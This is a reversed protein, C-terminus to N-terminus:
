TAEPQNNSEAGAENPKSEDGKVEKVERGSKLEYTRETFPAKMDPAPPEVSAIDESRGSASPTYPITGPKVVQDGKTKTGEKDVIQSDLPGRRYNVTQIKFIDLSSEIVYANKMGKEGNAFLGWLWLRLRDDRDLGTTVVHDVPFRYQILRRVFQSNADQYEVIRADNTAHLRIFQADFTQTNISGSPVEGRDITVDKWTQQKYPLLDEYNNAKAIVDEQKIYSTTDVLCPFPIDVHDGFAFNNRPMLFFFTDTSGWGEINPQMARKFRMPVQWDNSSVVTKVNFDMMPAKVRQAVIGLINMVMYYMKFDAECKVHGWLYRNAQTWGMGPMMNVSVEIDTAQWKQERDTNGYGAFAGILINSLAVWDEIQDLAKISPGIWRKLAEALIHAYFTQIQWESKTFDNSIRSAKLVTRPAVRIYTNPRRIKTWKDRILGYGIMKPEPIVKIGMMQTTIFDQFMDDIRSKMQLDMEIVVDKRDVYMAIRERDVRPVTELMVDIQRAFEGSADFGNGKWFRNGYLENSKKLILDIREKVSLSEGMKKDYDGKRFIYAIPATFSGMINNTKPSAVAEASFQISGNEVFTIAQTHQGVLGRQVIVCQSFLRMPMSTPAHMDGEIGNAGIVIM